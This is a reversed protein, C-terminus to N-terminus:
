TENGHTIPHSYKYRSFDNMSGIDPSLNVGLGVVVFLARHLVPANGSKPAPAPAPSPLKQFFLTRTCHPAAILFNNFINKNKNEIYKLPLFINKNQSLM